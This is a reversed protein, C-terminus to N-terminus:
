LMKNLEDKDSHIYAITQKKLELFYNKKSVCEGIRNIDKIRVSM